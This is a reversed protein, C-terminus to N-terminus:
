QVGGSYIVAQVVALLVQAAGLRYQGRALLISGFVAFTVVQVSLLGILFTRM